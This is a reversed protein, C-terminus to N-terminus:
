VEMEKSGLAAKAEEKTLFVTKGIASEPVGYLNSYVGSKLKWGIFIEYEEGIYAISSVIYETIMERDARPEYVTDGVSCPLELLRNQRKLEKRKRYQYVDDNTIMMAAALEEDRTFQKDYEIISNVFDELSLCKNFQQDLKDQLDEYEALKDAHAGYLFQTPADGMGTSSLAWRLKGNQRLPIVNQGDKKETLREM